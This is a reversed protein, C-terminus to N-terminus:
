YKAARSIIWNSMMQLVEESITEQINEYETQSGTKCHQFLHNLNPMERICFDTNGGRVLENAIALLNKKSRVQIDKEGNLAMVPCKMKRLYVSPDFAIYSKMWPPTLQHVFGDQTAKDMWTFSELIVRVDNKSIPSSGRNSVLELYKSIGDDVEEVQEKSLGQVAMDHTQDRLIEGGTIGPGALIIAFATKSFGSSVIPVISGGESHGIVGIGNVKVDTRTELYEMCRIADAAFDMTTALGYDGTSKGIGRKDYRLVLIGNRTLYDSIVLFPQHGFVASNRNNPGSGAVLLVAPFPGNGQPRTVTGALIVGAKENKIAVNEETYPYPRIPEQPRAARQNM